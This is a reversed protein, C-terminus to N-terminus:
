TACSLTVLIMYTVMIFKTVGLIPALCKNLLSTEKKKFIQPLILCCFLTHGFKYCHDNCNQRCRVLGLSSGM